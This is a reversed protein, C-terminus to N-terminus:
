SMTVESSNLRTSKRVGTIRARLKALLRGHWGAQFGMQITLFQATFGALTEVGPLIAFGLLRRRSRNWATQCSAQNFGKDFLGLMLNPNPNHLVIVHGICTDNETGAKGREASTRQMVFCCLFLAILESQCLYRYASQGLDHVM